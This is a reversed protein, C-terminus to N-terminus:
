SALHFVTRRSQCYGQLDNQGGFTSELLNVMQRVLTTKGSGNDGLIGFIKGWHIGLNINNNAPRCQKTYYKVLDRIEYAIM